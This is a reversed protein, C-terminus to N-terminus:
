RFGRRSLSKKEKGKLITLDKPHAIATAASEALMTEVRATGHTEEEDEWIEVV